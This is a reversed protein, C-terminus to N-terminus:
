SIIIDTASIIVNMEIGAGNAPLISMSISVSMIILRSQEMKRKKRARSPGSGKSRLQPGQSREIKCRNVGRGALKRSVRDNIYQAVFLLLVDFPYRM